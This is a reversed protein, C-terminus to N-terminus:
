VWIFLLRKKDETKDLARTLAYNAIAIIFMYPLTTVEGWAYFTLSALLLITNRYHVNKNLYYLFIFIPFFLLLYTMSSFLM